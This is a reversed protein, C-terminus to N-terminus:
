VKFLIHVLGFLLCSFKSYNQNFMNYRNVYKMIEAHLKWHFHSSIRHQLLLEPVPVCACTRPTKSFYNDNFINKLRYMTYRSKFGALMNSSSCPWTLIDSKPRAQSKLNTETLINEMNRKKPLQAHTLTRKTSLQTSIALTTPKLYIYHLLDCGWPIFCGGSGM